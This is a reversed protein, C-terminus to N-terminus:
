NRRKVHGKSTCILSLTISLINVGRNPLQPRRGSTGADYDAKWRGLMQFNFVSVGSLSKDKNVFCFHQDDVCTNCAYMCHGSIFCQKM